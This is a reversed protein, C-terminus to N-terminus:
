EKKYRYAEFGAAALPMDLAWSPNTALLSSLHESSFESSDPAETIVEDHISMVILYGADEIRQMNAAMVDRVVAQCINEFLKGGYTHIKGWQRSYQNVGLYSITGGKATTLGTGDCKDCDITVGDVEVAGVGECHSCPEGTDKISPSPYCLARGSPLGVRLWAGDRRIKLKGCVFTKSPTQIAAYVTDRINRWTFKINPHAARWGLKLSECVLWTNKELGMEVPPNRKRSEHWELMINAQGWIVPPISGIAQEAMEDLEINYTSAFTVFAGVGGEYGLALEQVKGVQRQEKDVDEPAIGFSGSYALKYLDHGTGDDYARFADLKWQEGALWAQDRGEINSLDAVVLKKGRPAVICGRIANSALRMVNDTVLDAAGAKISEIGLAVAEAPLDPRPLNDPQFLRGAWRGTRMAGCFQKTARLRNDDNVCNILTKYKTTSSTSSELRIRLLERLGEPLDPDEMRRKLTAKQMDPLDVGYTALIERMLQDRKTASEVAGNTIERTRQSLDKQASAVAKIAAQALEVDVAFGRDNILQDLHWLALEDGKFNWTPMRKHCARMAEIDKGAYVKFREWETPHTLRTARERGEHPKCFLQILARGDKDKAKDADIQLADCLDSLGAPLSHALAQVMTDRWRTIPLKFQSFNIDHRLVTRDFHTNHAWVEVNPAYLAAALGLPWGEFTTMDLVDVPGDDIAWSVLMVEVAEAYKHVGYLLPISSYTETDIWLKLVPV